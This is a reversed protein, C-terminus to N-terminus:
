MNAGSLMQDTKTGYLYFGGVSGGEVCFKIFSIGSAAEGFVSAVVFVEYAGAEIFLNKIGGEILKGDKDYPEIRVMEGIGSANCINIGTWWYGDNGPYHPLVLQEKFDEDDLLPYSAHDNPTRYTYYGTVPYEGDIDLISHYYRDGEEKGFMDLQVTKKEYPGLALTVDEEHNNGALRLHLTVRNEVDQPNIITATTSWYGPPPIHPVIRNSSGMGLAFLTEGGKGRSKVYQYGSLIQSGQANIEVWGGEPPNYFPAQGPRIPFVARPDIIEEEESQLMGGASFVRVTVPAAEFSENVIGGIMAQTYNMSSVIDPVVLRSHGQGKQVFCAMGSSESGFLNLLDVRTDSMLVLNDSRAYDRSRWTLNDFFFLKKEGPAMNLPGLVTQIPEGDAAYTTLTVDEVAEIGPNTLAFGSWDGNKPIYPVRRSYDKNQDFTITYINPDAYNNQTLRIRYPPDSATIMLNVKQNQHDLTTNEVEHGTGDLVLFTMDESSGPLKEVGISVVNGPLCSIRYDDEDLLILNYTGPAIPVIQGPSELEDDRSRALRVVEEYDLYPCAPQVELPYFLQEPHDFVSTGTWEGGIIDGNGDLFIDYTYTELRSETGMYDPPVNDKAYSIRVSVSETSGSLSSEMVYHYIPHSWVEEGASLDAVFAEGRDKIYNLLWYHFIEPRSGDAREYYNSDHAMTLLGKKDGVRFVIGDEVSPLIEYKEFCAAMAWEGCLGYWAPAGPDYYRENYWGTLVGPYAGNQLLEYKELPAPHGRYGIGTSLGGNTFPWWYGSWPTFEAGHEEAGAELPLCFFFILICGAAIFVLLRNDKMRTNMM